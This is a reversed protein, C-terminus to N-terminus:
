ELVEGDKSKWTDCCGHSKITISHLKCLQQYKTPLSNRMLYQTSFHVCTGCRPVHDQYGVKKKIRSGISM